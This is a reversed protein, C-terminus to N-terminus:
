APIGNFPIEPLKPFVSGSGKRGKVQVGKANMVEAL